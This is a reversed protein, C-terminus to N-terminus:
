TQIRNKGKGECELKLATNRAKSTGADCVSQCRDVNDIDNADVLISEVCAQDM